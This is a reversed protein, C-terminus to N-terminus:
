GGYQNAAAWYIASIWDVVMDETAGQTLMSEATEMAVEDGKTWGEDSVPNGDLDTEVPILQIRKRLSETMKPKPM